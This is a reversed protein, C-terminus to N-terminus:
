LRAYKPDEKYFIHRGIKAVKPKGWQPNVYDAHYYIAEKVTSLRFNELLVMKAVEFSENYVEKNMPKRRSPDDCYWSFQCVVRQYIVNKQQVVGCVTDAFRGSELRNMTVQAVAVKGEFQEGGAEYYINQALCKLQAEKVKAPIYGAPKQEMKLTLADVKVTSVTVILMVCMIFSLAFIGPKIIKEM